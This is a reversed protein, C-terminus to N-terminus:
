TQDTIAIDTAGHEQLYELIRELLSTPIAIAAMQQEGRYWEIQIQKPEKM